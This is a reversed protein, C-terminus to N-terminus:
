GAEVPVLVNAPLPGKPWTFSGSRRMEGRLWSVTMRCMQEKALAAPRGPVVLPRPRDDATVTQILGSRRGLRIYRIIYGASLPSPARNELRAIISDAAHAGLPLASACSM